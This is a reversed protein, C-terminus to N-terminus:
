EGKEVTFRITVPAIGEGEIHLAAEGAEGTTRVYTGGMGGRLSVCDGGILEIPGEVRLKLPEQYFPLVAGDQSVARIRVAAADYSVGEVLTHHSVDVMLAVSTM